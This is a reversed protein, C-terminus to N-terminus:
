FAAGRLPSVQYARMVGGSIARPQAELRTVRRGQQAAKLLAADQRPLLPAHTHPPHARAGAMLALCALVMLARRRRPTM